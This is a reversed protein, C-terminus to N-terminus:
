FQVALSVQLVCGKVDEILCEVSLCLHVGEVFYDIGPNEVLEDVNSRLVPQHCWVWFGVKGVKVDNQLHV